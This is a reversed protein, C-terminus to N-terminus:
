GPRTPLHVTFTSGQEEHSFVEVEGGHLAVIEKVIHLGLGLGGILQASVNKARYFRTFLHPLSEAPIGIGQDSIGVSIRGEHQEVRITVEGGEPSYKVANRLLNQFVQELRLEDGEIDLQECASILRVTHKELSPQIEDILRAMLACLDMRAREISLQGTEIRSIDLLLEILRNLREAQEYIVHLARQDRETIVGTQGIRRELLSAYGHLVTLPTKLEHSAISLFQDRIQVAEQAERYLWANDVALAARQALAEALELEAMGYEAAGLTIVGRIQERVVLPVALCSSGGIKMDELLGAKGQTLVRQIAPSDALNAVERVWEERQPDVHAAAVRSFMGEETLIDIVCWDALDPLVLKALNRLITEYDLSTGLLRGAEALFRLREEARQREAVEAQLAKNATALGATREAVRRELESHTQRLELEVRQREAIEQELAQKKKFLEVFVAVKSRLIDPVVPKFLYDVAGLSYGQFVHTESKNIATIFIIPTQQSRGRGRILEATEFGDMGPMQVDLLIAAFDQHLLQKLAEEGSYAKVLNQGLDQLIAELVLLNEPRDDVMLINVRPERDTLDTPEVMTQELM